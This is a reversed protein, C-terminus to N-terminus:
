MGLIPLLYNLTILSIAIAISIPFARRSNKVEGAVCGLSDWGQYNWLVAGTFVAWDISKPVGSLESPSPFEYLPEVFFPALIAVTFFISVVSVAEMGVINCVVVACLITLKIGFIAWWSLQFYSTLYDAFLVLYVPLDCINSCFSNFASIFGATPGLAEYVWVIYGGNDSDYM